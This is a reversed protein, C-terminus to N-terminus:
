SSVFDLGFSIILKPNVGNPIFTTLKKRLHKEFIINGNLFYNRKPKQNSLM